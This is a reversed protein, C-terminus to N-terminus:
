SKAKRKPILTLITLTFTSGTLFWMPWDGLRAYLTPTKRAPPLQAYVIGPANTAPDAIATIRGNSDIMASIGRNVSRAMPIGLEICRLSAIQLHQQPQHSAALWSDNYLSAFRDALTPPADPTTPNFPDPESVPLNLQGTAFWGDNTLNILADVRHYSGDLDLAMRRTLRPVTDEFCIPTAFRFPYALPDPDRRSGAIPDTTPYPLPLEFVTVQKGPTLSYDFDYPSLHNLIFNKLFTPGPIYEGFPVRHVKDYRTPHYGTDPLILFASNHATDQEIDRAPGGVLLPTNLETALGPRTNFNALNGLADPNDLGATADQQQFGELATRYAMSRRLYIQLAEPQYPWARQAFNFFADNTPGPIATEPWVILDPKLDPTPPNLAADRTQGLLDRWFLALTEHDNSDKNSQPLDTQILALTPSNRNQQMPSYVMGPLLPVTLIVTAIMLGYSWAFNRDVPQLHIRPGSKRNEIKHAQHYRICATLYILADAVVGNVFVLSFTITNQGLLAATQTIYTPGQDPTTAAQTHALFFWAYGGFPGQERLFDFTTWALPLLLAFPLRTRARLLRLTLVALTTWATLYASLALYGGVTVPIMWRQLLLYAPLFALFTILALHLTPRTPRLRQALSGRISDTPKQATINQHVTLTLPVLCVWALWRLGPAPFTLLFLLASLAPLATAPALRGLAALATKLAALLRRM